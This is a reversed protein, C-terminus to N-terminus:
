FSGQGSQRVQTKAPGPQPAIPEETVRLLSSQVKTGQRLLEDGDHFAIETTTTSSTFIETGLDFTFESEGTVALRVEGDEEAVTALDYTKSVLRKKDATDKVTYTTKERALWPEGEGDAWVAPPGATRQWGLRIRVERNVNRHKEDMASVAEIALRSLHREVFPQDRRPQDAMLRGQKDIRIRTPEGSVTSTQVHHGGHGGTRLFRTVSEICDVEAVGDADLSKVRYTVTGELDEVSNYCQTNSKVRYTYRYGSKWGYRAIPTSAPRSTAATSDSKKAEGANASAASKDAPAAADAAVACSSPQRQAAAPLFLVCGIVLLSLPTKMAFAWLTSGIAGQRDCASVATM